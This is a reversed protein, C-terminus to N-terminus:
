SNIGTKKVPEETPSTEPWEIGLETMLQAFVGDAVAIHYGKVLM